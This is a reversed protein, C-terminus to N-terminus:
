ASIIQVCTMNKGRNKNHIYYIFHIFLMKIKEFFTAFFSVMTKYTSNVKRFCFLDRSFLCDLNHKGCFFCGRFSFVTIMIKDRIVISNGYFDHIKLVYVCMSSMNPYIQMNENLICQERVPGHM